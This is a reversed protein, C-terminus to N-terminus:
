CNFTVTGKVRKKRHEEPAEIPIPVPTPTKLPEIPRVHNLVQYMRALPVNDKDLKLHGERKPITNSKKRKTKSPPKQTLMKGDYPQTAFTERVLSEMSGRMELQEVVVAGTAGMRHARAIVQAEVSKDWIEDMLFIHTVFSLDLGIAGIETMFLVHVMPNHQFLVLQELRVKMSDGQVFSASRVLQRDFEHRIRFIQERFDSFVICKVPRAPTSPNVPAKVAEKLLNKIRALVYLGKSSSWINDDIPIGSPAVIGVPKEVANWKYDFGPQLLQFHEWNFFKWCCPCTTMLKEGPEFGEASVHEDICEACVLHGCVVVTLLQQPHTCLQCPTCNGMVADKMYRCILVQNEGDIKYKDLFEITEEYHKESLTIEMQGGGCSALRLNSLATMADRRNEPNLLSDKHLAGPTKPDWKTVVLNGRVAGVVTNYVQFELPSPEIFTTFRKPPPISTIDSKVHRLMIRNLLQQLRIYGVVERSEFPKAIAQVWARDDIAGYPRDRVFRLLSHLHRLGDSQAINRTPTGTMIWRKDCSLACLMQVGNTIGLVGLKHGEDVIVRVWHVKLFPSLGKRETGDIYSSRNEFGFREPARTELACLPRMHQWHHGIRSFTTVVVDYQILTEADPVNKETDLYVNIDTTHVKFQFSWHAVLTDPVIILSTKSQLFGSSTRTRDNASRLGYSVSIPEIAEIDDGLQSLAGKTRLILAIMTITKGLGPEDCLFGGSFDMAPVPLRHIIGLVPDIRDLLIYPHPIHRSSHTRERHQMWKLARKQHPFLTLQLGPVTGYTLNQFMTNVIAVVGIEQANLYRLVEWMVNVPLDTLVLKAGTSVRHLYSEDDRISIQNSQIPLELSKFLSSLKFKKDLIAAKPAHVRCGLVQCETSWADEWSSRESDILAPELHQLIYKCQRLWKSNLNIGSTLTFAVLIVVSPSNQIPNLEMELILHLNDVLCWLNQWLKHVSSYATFGPWILVDLDRPVNPHVIVRRELEPHPASCAIALRGLLM